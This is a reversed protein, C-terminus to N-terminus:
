TAEEPGAAAVREIRGFAYGRSLVLAVADGPRLAAAERVIPGAETERRVIAYGRALCALPSLTALDRRAREIALRAVDIRGAVARELRECLGALRARARELAAGPGGVELRRVLAGLERREWAVRRAAARLMRGHLEDLRVALHDVRRQPSPLRMALGRLREGARGLRRGAAALLADRLGGVVARLRDREPVVEAAAATPTAARRDAVLDAITVDIEHGVGSVVAVRSGAIARAVVEENFAWLDELSGGGRGVLLVDVGGLRNMDAIGAAIDAAAGAGQVRVPRVVVRAAPWRRRLTTLMDHVAAGTLATVIGVTRPIPPLPRKREPAFLGEAELRARVQEFALRLAGLGQPEMRDVVLQLTGRAPYLDLRGRVIVDLGESPEFSVVQATRWFMVANLQSHADKLAFYVHRAASRRVGSLEGAVWVVGVADDLLGRMAASLETVTLIRPGLAPRGGTM